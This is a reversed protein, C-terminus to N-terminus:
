ADLAVATTIAALARRDGTRAHVDLATDALKVVHEGGHLVASEWIEDATAETSRGPGDAAPRYAALVAATATWAADLSPRWLERPLTPLTRAVANPATAAHVLMTPNGVAIRPYALVVADVVADLVAPVDADSKPRRLASAQEPWGDTTALQALRDRIGGEQRAVRPLTALLAGPDADGHVPALPVAQWRAAWYGLAHALETVRPQTVESRLAHVAHGVRIVGHTAGAAIGPLLVPWWTALVDTWAAEYLEREFFGIWDALRRGDGLAESTDARGLRAWPRPMEELRLAYDDTWQHVVSGSGRRALAEVAMPGHNSLWGEFEPGTAHLRELAEDYTGAATTQM